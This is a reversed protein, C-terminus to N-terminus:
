HQTSPEATDAHILVRDATQGQGSYSTVAYGHDLHPHRQPDIQLDRGGDLRLDPKLHLGNIRHRGSPSKFGWPAYAVASKLPLAKPQAERLIRGVVQTPDPSGSGSFAQWPSEAFADEHLSALSLFAWRVTPM